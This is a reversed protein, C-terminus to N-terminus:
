RDNWWRNASREASRPCGQCTTTAIDAHLQSMDIKAMDLIENILALLHKGSRIAEEIGEVAEEPLDGDVGDLLVESYGIISNLPTRLEHSMNALFQSKM